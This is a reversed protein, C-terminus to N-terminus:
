QECSLSIANLLSSICVCLLAIRIITVKERCIAAPSTYLLVVWLFTCLLRLALPHLCKVWISSFSSSVVVVVVVVV